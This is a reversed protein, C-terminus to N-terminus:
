CGSLAKLRAEDMLGLERTQGIQWAPYAEIGAEECAKAQAKFDGPVGCEVFTIKDKDAGFLALQAQTDKNWYAGYLTAGKRALCGALSEEAPPAPPAPTSPAPPADEPAPAAEGTEFLIAAEVDAPDLGLQEAVYSIVAAEDTTPVRLEQALSASTVIVDTYGSSPFSTALIQLDPPAQAPPLAPGTKNKGMLAESFAPFIKITATRRLEALYADFAKQSQEIRLDSVVRDKVEDFPMMGQARKETVKILHWGYPTQVPDSIENAKLSFAAEEFAPVMRGRTFFGLNGRNGPITFGSQNSDNVSPDISHEIALTEFDEGNEIRKLLAEAEEETNVLIHSAVVGEPTMFRDPNADYYAQADTDTINVGPLITQNVLKTIILRRHFLDDFETRTFNRAAILGDLDAEAMGSQDLLNKLEQALEADTVAIGHKKADDLLLREDILQNLIGMPDAAQMSAPLNQLQQAVDQAYIPQGNVTAAIQTDPAPAKPGGGSFLQPRVLYLVLLILVLAIIAAVVYIAVPTEPKRARRKGRM